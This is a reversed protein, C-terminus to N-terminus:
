LKVKNFAKIYSDAASSLSFYDLAKTRIKSRDTKHLNNLWSILRGEQDYNHQHDYLFCDPFQKLIEETDGIDKSAITPIGMLLYEGLKIPSVGQMSFSPKRIAFAVDAMNLYPPVMMFPVSQVFIKDKMDEPVRTLAYDRDGTIIFWRAPHHIAYGRFIELMENWGYQPGLSGCYIFVKETKDLNFEKRKQIRAYEDRQFFDPNKGNHVVFFKAHYQNGITHLHIDISKKSRTIVADAKELMRKEQKKLWRYQKSKPSLGAFDVREELPLGDADFILRIDNLKILNLMLAPFTSRPMVVDIKHEELYKAIVSKGKWVTFASGILPHPKRQIPYPRYKIGLNSAIESILATKIKDAWTFQIIHFEVPYTLGIEQFIPLFLGEMYSTRPGDWTIFLLKHSM